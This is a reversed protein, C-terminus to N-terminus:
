QCICTKNIFGMSMSFGPLYSKSHVPEIVHILTHGTTRLNWEGMCTGHASNWIFTNTEARSNWAEWLLWLEIDSIKFHSTLIYYKWRLIWEFRAFLTFQRQLKESKYSTFLSKCNLRKCGKISSRSYAHILIGGKSSFTFQYPIPQWAPVLLM